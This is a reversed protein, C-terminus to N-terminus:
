GKNIALELEFILRKIKDFAQDIELRRSTSLHIIGEKVEIPLAALHEDKIPPTSTLLDRLESIAANLNRQHSDAIQLNTNGVSTIISNASISIRRIFNAAFTLDVEQTSVKNYIEDIIKYIGDVRKIILDKEVRNAEKKSELISAVWYAVGLTVLMSILSIAAGITDVETKVKIVAWRQVTKGILIGVILVTITYVISVATFWAKKTLM